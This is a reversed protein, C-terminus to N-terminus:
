WGLTKARAIAEPLFVKVIKKWDVLEFALECFDFALEAKKGKGDVADLMMEELEEAGDLLANKIEANKNKGCYTVLTKAMVQCIKENIDHDCYAVSEANKQIEKALKELKTM